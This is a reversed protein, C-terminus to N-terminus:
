IETIDQKIYQVFTFVSCKQKQDFHGFLMKIEIEKEYFLIELTQNGSANYM